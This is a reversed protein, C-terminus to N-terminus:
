MGRWTRTPKGWPLSSPRWTSSTSGYKTVMLQERNTVDVIEFPGAEVLEEPTKVIQQLSGRQKAM